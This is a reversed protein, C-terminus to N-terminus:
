KLNELIIKPVLSKFTQSTPSAFFDATDGVASVFEPLFYTQSKIRSIKKLGFEGRRIQSKLNEASKIEVVIGDIEKNKIPVSVITGLQVDQSTFYTLNDKFFGKNIPIISVIKM